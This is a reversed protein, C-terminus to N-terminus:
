TAKGVRGNMGESTKVEEWNDFVFDMVIKQAEYYFRSFDSVLEVAPNEVTLQNKFSELALYRLNDLELLHALRYISKPSSPLPLLPEDQTFTSLHNLHEEVPSAFTSSLPAFSIYQSQVWVIVASYTTYSSERVIIEHFPINSSKSSSTSTSASPSVISSLNANKDAEDAEDDSEVFPRKKRRHERPENVNGTKASAIGEAFGSTFLAKFYLSTAMLIKSSTWIERDVFLFYFKVDNLFQSASLKTAM